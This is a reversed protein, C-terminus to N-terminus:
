GLMSRKRGRQRVEQLRREVSTGEIPSLSHALNYGEILWKGYEEAHSSHTSLLARELVYLDVAKDEVPAKQSALGFDILGVSRNKMVVINSTTLDGHVVGDLHMKGIFEGVAILVDKVVNNDYGSEHEQEWLWNKLSSPDGNELTYGLYTMWISGKAQDVYLLKPVNFGNSYLKEMVKAEGRTRQKTITKDLQPHRYRKSPRYKLVCIENNGNTVKEGKYNVYSSATFVLAEAGQSVMTLDLQPFLNAVTDLIEKSM